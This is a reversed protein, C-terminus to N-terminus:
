HRGYAPNKFHIQSNYIKTGPLISISQWVQRPIYIMNFVVCIVVANMGNYNFLYTYTYFYMYKYM